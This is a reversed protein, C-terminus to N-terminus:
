FGVCLEDYGAITLWIQFFKRYQVTSTLQAAFLYNATISGNVSFVQPRTQNTKTTLAFHRFM